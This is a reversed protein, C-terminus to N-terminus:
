VMFTVSKYVASHMSVCMIIHVSHITRYYQYHIAEKVWVIGIYPKLNIYVNFLLMVTITLRLSM